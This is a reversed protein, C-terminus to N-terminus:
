NLGRSEYRDEYSTFQLLDYIANRLRVTAKEMYHCPAEDSGVHYRQWLTYMEEELKDKERVVDDLMTQFNEHSSPIKHCRATLSEMKSIIARVDDRLYKDSYATSNNLM